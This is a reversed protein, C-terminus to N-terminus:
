PLAGRNFLNYDWLQNFKTANATPPVSTASARAVAYTRWDNYPSGGSAPGSGGQISARGCYVVQDMGDLRTVPSGFTPALDCGSMVNALWVGPYQVTEDDPRGPAVSGPVDVLDFLFGATAGEILAGDGLSRFGNQEVATPGLYYYPLREGVTWASFFDAFGEVFACSLTCPRDVYHEDSNCNYSAWPEIARYHFAHGYEHLVTFAGDEAGLGTLRDPHLRIVDESPSYNVKHNGAPNAVWVPVQPRSRGFRGVAVPVYQRLLQHAIVAPANAIRLDAVGVQDGLGYSGLYLTGNDGLVNAAPSLLYYYGSATM